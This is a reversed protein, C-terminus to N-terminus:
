HLEDWESPLSLLVLTRANMEKSKFASVSHGAAQCMQWRVKGTVIGQIHLASYAAKKQLTKMDFLGDCPLSTFFICTKHTLM